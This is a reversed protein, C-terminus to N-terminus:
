FRSIFLPLFLLNMEKDRKVFVFNPLVDKGSEAEAQIIEMQKAGHPVQVYALCGTMRSYTLLSLSFILIIGKVRLLIM